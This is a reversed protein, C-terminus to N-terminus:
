RGHHVVQLSRRAGRAWGTGDCWSVSGTTTPWNTPLTGFGGIQELLERRMAITAGSVFSQSGFLAAVDVAPMFWENIFM